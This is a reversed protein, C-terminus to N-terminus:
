ASPALLCSTVPRLRVGFQILRCQAALTSLHLLPALAPLNQLLRRKAHIAEEAGRQGPPTGGMSCNICARQAHPCSYQWLQRGQGALARTRGRIREHLDQTSQRFHNHPQLLVSTFATHRMTNRTGQRGPAFIRPMGFRPDDLTMGNKLCATGHGM